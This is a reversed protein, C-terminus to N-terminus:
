QDACARGKRDGPNPRARTPPAHLCRHRSPRASSAVACDQAEDVVIEFFRHRLLETCAADSAHELAAIRVELGTMYGSTQWLRERTAKARALYDGETMPSNYLYKAAKPWRASTQGTAPDYHFEFASLPVNRPGVLAAPIHDWSVVHQWPPIAPLHPRVLYRWLFSDFTGIYHPFATLDTRNVEDKCRERLEDAAVNTVSLLARGSRRLDTPTNCHRDVLTRTKGAGPCARVFLPAEAHIAQEQQSRAHKRNEDVNSM